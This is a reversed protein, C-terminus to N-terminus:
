VCAKVRDADRFTFREIEQNKKVIMLSDTLACVKSIQSFYIYHTQSRKKVGHNKSHDEGVYTGGFMSGRYPTLLAAGTDEPEYDQEVAELTQLEQDFGSRLAAASEWMGKSEEELDQPLPRRGIRISDAGVASENAQPLRLQGSSLRIELLTPYAKVSVARLSDPKYIDSQHKASDEFLPEGGKLTHLYHALETILRNRDKCNFQM